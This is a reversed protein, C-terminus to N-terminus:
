RFMAEHWRIYEILRKLILTVSVLSSDLPWFLHVDRPLSWEFRYVDICISVSSPERYKCRLIYLWWVDNLKHGINILMSVFTNSSISVYTSMEACDYVDIKLLFLLTCRYYDGRNKHLCKSMLKRTFLRAFFNDIRHREKRKWKKKKKKKKKKKYKSVSVAEILVFLFRQRGFNQFMTLIQMLLKDLIMM